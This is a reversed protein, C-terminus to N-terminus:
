VAHPSILTGGCYYGLGGGISARVLVMYPRSGPLIEDGGVISQPGPDEYHYFAHKTATVQAALAMLGLFAKLAIMKM